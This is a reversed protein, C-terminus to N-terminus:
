LAAKVAELQQENVVGATKMAELVELGSPQREPEVIGREVEGSVLEVKRLRIDVKTIM